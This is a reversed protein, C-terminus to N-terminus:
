APPSRLPPQAVPAAISATLFEVPIYARTAVVPAPAVRAETRPRFSRAWHCVLCHLPQVGASAPAGIRHASADHQVVVCPADHCDDYHPALASGGAGALSAVAVTAVRSAQLRFWALM